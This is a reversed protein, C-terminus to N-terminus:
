DPKVLLPKAGGPLGRPPVGMFGRIMHTGRYTGVLVTLGREYTRM